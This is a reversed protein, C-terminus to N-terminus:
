RSGRRWGPWLPASASTCAAALAWTARIAAASTWGTPIPSFPRTATPQPCSAWSWRGPRSQGVASSSMRRPGGPSGPRRGTTACSSRSPRPPWTPSLASRALEGPNRLLALTANAILNSTTEHGAMLLMACTATLEEDSLVTEDESAQVMLGLLDEAPEARRQAILESFYAEMNRIGRYAIALNEDQDGVMSVARMVDHSWQEFDHVRDPAVGLMHAIVRSPVPFGFDGIIDIQEQGKVRDLAENVVRQVFPELMAISRPVFARSILKRLRTHEPPDSFVMWDTFFRLAAQTKEDNGPPMLTDARASSFRRDRLIVHVDQYRTAFWMGMQGHWYLPDNERMLAYTEYPAAFHAPSVLDYSATTTM